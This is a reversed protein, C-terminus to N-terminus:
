HYKNGHEETEMITPPAVMEYIFGCSVEWLWVATHSHSTEHPNIYSITAGGVMM